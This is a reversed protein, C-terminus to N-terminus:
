NSHSFESVKAFISEFTAVHINRDRL